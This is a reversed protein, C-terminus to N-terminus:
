ARDISLEDDCAQFGLLFQTGNADSTCAITAGLLESVQKVFALGLGASLGRSPDNPGFRKFLVVMREPPIGPGCDAIECTVENPTSSDTEVAMALTCTVAAGQPSYKIANDLLNGLARILLWPDANIPPLDEPGSLLVRVQRLRAADFCRDIAEEVISRLDLVEITPALASLRALQVFDDALKLSTQAYDKIRALPLDQEPHIRALELIGLIGAQPARLDHSLFELFEDRERESTRRETIDVLRIISGGAVNQETRFNATKVLMTRGDSLELEANAIRDAPAIQALLAKVKSGEADAGLLAKARENALTVTGDPDIVGIADPASEIVDKLFQRRDRLEGIMARLNSAAMAVADLGFGRKNTYSVLGLELDLAQAQQEVFRNLASLRRWNWLPYALILATLLPVPTIWIRQSALAAASLVVALLGIAVTVLLGNTPRVRWFVVMVLVLVLGALGLATPAGIDRVSSGQLLTNLLNAQVEVGPMVSGAPAPVPLIDGLGQATAGVLVIKNKLLSAPVEGRVIRDAPIASFAGAQNFPIAIEGDVAAGDASVVRAVAAMLHPVRQGHDGIAMTARRVQGDPDFTVNVHGISKAADELPALPRQLDFARGNSGPVIVYVPLVVRGSRQVAATLVADEGHESPEIFLVDYGIAAVGGATLRNILQAHISRPWPWHGLSTLSEEDIQVILIRPDTPPASLALEHDFVWASLQQGAATRATAMAALGALLVM